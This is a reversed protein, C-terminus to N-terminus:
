NAGTNEVASRPESRSIDTTVIPNPPFIIASKKKIVGVQINM